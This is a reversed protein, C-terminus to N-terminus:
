IVFNMCPNNFTMIALIPVNQAAKVNCGDVDSELGQIIELIIKWVSQVRTSFDTWSATQLSTM